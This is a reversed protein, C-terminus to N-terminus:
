AKHEEQALANQVIELIQEAEAVKWLRRAAALASHACELATEGNHTLGVAIPVRKGQEDTGMEYKSLPPSKQLLSAGTTIFLQVLAPNHLLIAQHLPLTYRSPCNVDAGAAILKQAMGIEEIATAILLPTEGSGPDQQNMDFEANIYQQIIAAQTPKKSDIIAFLLKELSMAQPHIAQPQIAQPQIMDDSLLM